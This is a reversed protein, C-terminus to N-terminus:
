VQDIAARRNKRLEAATGDVLEVADDSGMRVFIMPSPEHIHGEEPEINGLRLPM